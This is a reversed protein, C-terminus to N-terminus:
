EGPHLRSKRREKVGQLWIGGWVGAALLIPLAYLYFIEIKTMAGAKAIRVKCGFTLRFGDNALHVNFTRSWRVM